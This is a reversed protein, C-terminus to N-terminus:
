GTRHWGSCTRAQFPAQDGGALQAIKGFATKSGTEVVVAQGSGSVVYTGQFVMNDQEYIQKKNTLVSNHKNLPVSEGTLASENIQLGEAHIIRADAPVREGEALLLIDGPVLDLASITQTQDNRRVAVQQIATKKLSRLVRNTAYQQVYFIIAGVFIIISIIVAELPEHSILSVFAAAVLVAVFVGRFPEVIVKWLPEKKLELENPGYTKLRNLAEASALGADSTELEELIAQPSQQYWIM